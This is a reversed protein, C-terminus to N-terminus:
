KGWSELGLELKLGRGLNEAEVWSELGLEHKLGWSMNGATGASNAKLRTEVNQVNELLISQAQATSQYKIPPYKRMM